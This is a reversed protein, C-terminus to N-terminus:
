AISFRRRVVKVNGEEDEVIKHTAGPPLKGEEDVRAAQGSEILAEVFAAEDEPSAREIPVPQRPVPAT